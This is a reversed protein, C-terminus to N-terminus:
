LGGEERNSYEVSWARLRAKAKWYRRNPMKWWRMKQETWKNSM